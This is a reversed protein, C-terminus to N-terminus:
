PIEVFGADLNFDTIGPFIQVPRAEVYVFYLYKKGNVVAVTPEGAGFLEGAGTNGNGGILINESSWCNNNTYTSACSGNTPTYNHSVINAGRSFILQDGTFFPQDEEDATNIVSPLTDKLWTGSPFSGATLRYVSLDHSSVEDDTWISKINGSSDEYLHPNGQQGTHTSFGVPSINPTITQFSDGGYSAGYTVTGLVKDKGLTMNGTYIDANDDGLNNLYNNWAVLFTATGDGNLKFSLGFPGNVGKPDDFYVRFPEAFTGDTQKKFGYFMTPPAFLGNALGGIVLGPLHRIKGGVIAQSHFDPRYPASYPGITNFILDSNSRGACSNLNYGVSYLPDNCISTISPIGSFYLPGYQVFLYQGDPTVTVGDEYGDTNVYNGPVAMPQGVGTGYTDFVVAKRSLSVGDVTIQVPYVGTAPPTVTFTYNGNGLDSVASVGGKPVSLILSKGATPVGDASVTVTVVFPDFGTQPVRTMSLELSTQPVAAPTEDAKPTCSVAFLAVVLFSALIIVFLKQTVRNTYGSARQIFVDFRRIKNQYSLQPSKATQLERKVYKGTM